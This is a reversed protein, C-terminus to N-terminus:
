PGRGDARFRAAEATRRNAPESIIQLALFLDAIGRVDYYDRWGDPNTWPDDVCMSSLATCAKGVLTDYDASAAAFRDTDGGAVSQFQTSLHALEWLESQMRGDIATKVRIPFHDGTDPLGPPSHELAEIDIDPASILSRILTRGKFQVNEMEAIRGKDKKHEEIAIERLKDDDM